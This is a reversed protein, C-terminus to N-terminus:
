VSTRSIFFPYIRLCNNTAALGRRLRFEFLVHKLLSKVSAFFRLDIQLPPQTPRPPTVSTTNHWSALNSCARVKLGDRRFLGTFFTMPLQM